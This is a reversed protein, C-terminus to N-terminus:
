GEPEASRDKWFGPKRHDHAVALVHIVEERTLYVLHYPFRAVPLRRVALDSPVEPVLSGSHPWSRAQQVARDVAALLQLGLGARREDYWDTAAQLEAAADAHLTAPRTM